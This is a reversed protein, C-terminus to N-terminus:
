TAAAKSTQQYWSHYLTPASGSGDRTSIWKSHCSADGTWRWQDRCILYHWNLRTICFSQPCQVECADMEIMVIVTYGV